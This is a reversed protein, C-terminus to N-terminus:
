HKILPPAYVCIKKMTKSVKKKVKRMNANQQETKVVSTVTVFVYYDYVFSAHM